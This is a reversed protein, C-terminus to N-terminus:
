WPTEDTELMHHGFVEGRNSLKPTYPACGPPWWPFGSQLAPQRLMQDLLERILSITRCSRVPRLVSAFAQPGGARGNDGSGVGRGAARQRSNFIRLGRANGADNVKLM